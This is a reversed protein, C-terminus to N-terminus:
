LAVEVRRAWAVQGAVVDVSFGPVALETVGLTRARAEVIDVDDDPLILDDLAAAPVLTTAATTGGAVLAVRIDAVSEEDLGWTARVDAATNIAAYVAVHLLSHEPVGSHRVLPAWVLTPPAARGRAGERVVQASRDLDSDPIAWLLVRDAVAGAVRLMEDGRGAVVTSVPALQLDLGRGSAADLPAGAGVEDLLEVLARVRVPADSRSIGAAASVESGGAAIGCFVRPGVLEQLTALAAVTHFPHRLYPNTMAPGIAIEDTHDAVRSLLMWVDRWWFADAFGIWSAGSAESAAALAIAAEPDPNPIHGIVGVM